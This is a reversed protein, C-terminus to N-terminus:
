TYQPGYGPMAIRVPLGLLGEYPQISSDWQAIIFPDLPLDIGKPLNENVKRVFNKIGKFLLKDSVTHVITKGIYHLAIKYDFGRPDFLRFPRFIGTSKTVPIKVTYIDRGFGDTGLHEKRKGVYYKLANWVLRKGLRGRDRMKGYNGNTVREASGWKEFEDDWKPNARDGSTYGTVRGHSDFKIENVNTLPCEGLSENYKRFGLIIDQYGKPKSADRTCIVEPSEDGELPGGNYGFGWVDTLARTYKGKQLNAQIYLEAVSILEDFLSEGLEQLNTM